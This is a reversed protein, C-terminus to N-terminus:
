FNEQANPNQFHIFIRNELSGFMDNDLTLTVLISLFISIMLEKWEIKEEKALLQVQFYEIIVDIKEM